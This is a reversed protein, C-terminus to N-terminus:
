AVTVASLPWLREFAAGDLEHLVPRWDSGSAAVAAACCASVALDALSWCGPASPDTRDDLLLAPEDPDVSVDFTDLGHNVGEGLAKIYAEKRTWTAFFATTRAPQDFAALAHRESPSFVRTAIEDLALEESRHEVDVGVPRWALAILTRDSTHSLSFDLTARRDADLAPKGRPGVTFRLREPSTELHAALLLRVLGHAIIFRTRDRAFRFRRARELEARDLLTALPTEYRAFAGVDASWVDVDAAGLPAIM